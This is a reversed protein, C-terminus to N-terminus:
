FYIKHHEFWKRNRLQDFKNVFPSKKLKKNKNTPLPPPSPSATCMREYKLFIAPEHM